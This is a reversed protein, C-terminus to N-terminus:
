FSPNEVVIRENLGDHYVNYETNDGLTDVLVRSSIRINNDKDVTYTAIAHGMAMRPSVIELVGADEVCHVVSGTHFGFSRVISAPVCLRGRNDTGLKQIDGNVDGDNVIDDEEPAYVFAQANPTVNELNKAYRLGADLEDDMYDHVCNRVDRHEVWYGDARLACTIDYATFSEQDSIKKDIMEEAACAHEVTLSM